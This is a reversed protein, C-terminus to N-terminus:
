ERGGVAGLSASWVKLEVNNAIPEKFAVEVNIYHEIQNQSFLANYGNQLRHIMSHM